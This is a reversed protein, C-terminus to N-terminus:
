GSGPAAPARVTRACRAARPRPPRRAALVRERAGVPRQELCQDGPQGGGDVTEPELGLRAVRAISACTPRVRDPKRDATVCLRRVGSADILAAADVSRTAAIEVEGGVVAGLQEVGDVVLGLAQFPQDGVDELQAADAGAPELHVALRDVERSRACAATRRSRGSARAWRTRSSTAASTRRRRPRRRSSPAPRRCGARSRAATRAARSALDQHRRAPASATGVDLHADGVVTGAHGLRLALAIKSSNARTSARGSALPVPRPRAITCASTSRARRGRITRPSAPRRARREHEHHRRHRAPM